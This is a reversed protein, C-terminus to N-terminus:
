WRCRQHSGSGSRGAAKEARVAAIRDDRGAVPVEVEPQELVERQALPDLDLVAPLHEVRHVVRVQRIRLAVDGAAASTLDLGQGARPDHLHTQSNGELPSDVLFGPGRGPM